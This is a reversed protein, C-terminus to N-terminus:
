LGLRDPRVLALEPQERGEIVLDAILSATLPALLVGTRYHGTAYFVHRMTSSPGIAPLGDHTKPRLGVRVDQIRAGRVAPVLEAAARLLSRVAEPTSSEDFGVDEVTAGVLVSGDAWPVLYCGTGWIVRQVPPEALHLHVLQGRIPRVPERAAPQRPEGAEPGANGFQSSWSGAAIIVADAPLVGDSTVVEAGNGTARVAMARTTSWSAGLNMAAQELARTLAQAAVFGHQRILLAGSVAGLGRELHRAGCADTLERAVGAAALDASLRVLEAMETATRAVQLTGSRTYEIDVAAGSTARGVFDDFMEMSRVCLQRM